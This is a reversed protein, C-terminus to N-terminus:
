GFTGQCFWGASMAGGHAFFLWLREGRDTTVMWYDRPGSRWEPDDLWWEPAIREPGSRARVTHDRGRWRFAEPLTPHPPIMVPEPRWLRLPRELGGRVWNQAPPVFAAAVRQAGKEPIHSEAPHLRVLAELGLRAGIRGMLAEIGDQQGRATAEASAELHGKHQLPHIPEHSVAIIRVQDIGFGADVDGIKLALLPKMREPDASPQALGLDVAQMTHDTRSFEIRLQRVGRGARKLRTELEPLLRDLVGMLDEILGIPEPLGMRVAFRARPRAPSVPEPEVGLAQDLRRVLDRGFRRALGARPTGFLDEIRRLGLRTLGQATEDDIRLAIIPLPGIAQRTAGSAAIRPASVERRTSPPTGGRTWHRRKVARSRTARAEQDIDDGSRHGGVGSGSFRALAWAAGVTDAIGLCVSLGLDACDRDVEQAM